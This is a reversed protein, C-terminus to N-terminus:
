VRGALLGCLESGLPLMQSELGPNMFRDYVVRRRIRRVSSGLACRYGAFCCWVSCRRPVRQAMRHVYGVADGRGPHDRSHM